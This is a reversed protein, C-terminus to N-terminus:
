FTVTASGLNLQNVFKRLYIVISVFGPIRVHVTLLPKGNESLSWIIECMSYFLSFNYVKDFQLVCILFHNWRTLGFSVLKNQLSVINCECEDEAKKTLIIWKWPLYWPSLRFRSLHSHLNKLLNTLYILFTINKDVCSIVWEDKLKRAECEIFIPFIPVTSPLHM